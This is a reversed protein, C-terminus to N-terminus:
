KLEVAIVRQSGKVLQESHTRDRPNFKAQGFVSSSVTTKGDPTTSSLDGTGLYVVVVDKDHFHMPTPKGPTWAYDWIVVRDNDLLKRAGERPFADAYGSKNPLPPVTVDKLDILITHRPIDSTGEEMHTVGKRVFFAQGLRPTANTAAGQQPTVKVTADALEIGVMDFRHRHMTTPKGKAWTAEWVTVRENDILQKAGERPFAHPLEPTQASLPLLTLLLTVLAKTM